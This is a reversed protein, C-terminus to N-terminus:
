GLLARKGEILCLLFFFFFRTLKFMNLPKNWRWKIIKPLSRSSVLCCCSSGGEPVATACCGDRRAPDEAQSELWGVM